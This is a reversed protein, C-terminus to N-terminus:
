DVEVRGELFLGPTANAMAHRIRHAMHWTTQYSGIKPHRQLQLASVGKKAAYVYHFASLWARLDIRSRHLITGVTVTFQKRCTPRRCKFLGARHAKGQLRTM